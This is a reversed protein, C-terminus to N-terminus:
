GRRFYWREAFRVFTDAKGKPANEQILFSLEMKDDLFVAMDIENEALAKEVQLKDGAFVSVSLQPFKEMFGEALSFLLSKAVSRDSGLRLEGELNEAVLEMDHALDSYGALIKEAHALFLHGQGTLAIRGAAREFLQVRYANELEQVHKTVAPQSIGLRNAAKTFSLHQAVEVFVKLRFDM